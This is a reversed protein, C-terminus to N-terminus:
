RAELGDGAPAGWRMEIEFSPFLAAGYLADAVEGYQLRLAGFIGAAFRSRVGAECSWADAFSLETAASELAVESRVPLKVSLQVATNDSVFARAGARFFLQRTALESDTYPSSEDSGYLQAYTYQVTLDLQAVSGIPVSGTLALPVNLVDLDSVIRKTLGEATWFWDGHGYWVGGRLGLDFHRTDLFHWSASLNLLGVGLHALNLDVAFGAGFGRSVGLKAFADGGGIGLASMSLGWMGRPLTYASNRLDAQEPQRLHPPTSSAVDSPLAATRDALPPQAAARATGLGFVGLM